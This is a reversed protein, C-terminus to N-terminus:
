SWMAPRQPLLPVPTKARIEDESVGTATEILVLGADTVDIVGLDTFIRQVCRRGTLLLTCEDVIKPTGGRSVHEMMVLVRDAGHALDM